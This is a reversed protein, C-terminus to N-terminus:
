SDVETMLLYFVPAWFLTFPLPREEHFVPTFNNNSFPIIHSM